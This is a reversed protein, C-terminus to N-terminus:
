RLAASDRAMAKVVRSAFSQSALLDMYNAVTLDPSINIDKTLLRAITNDSVELAISAQYQRKFTWLMIALPLLVAIMCLLIMRRHKQVIRIHETLQLKEFDM